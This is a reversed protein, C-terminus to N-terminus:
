PAQLLRDVLRAAGQHQEWRQAAANARLALEDFNALALRSGAVIGAVSWDLFEAAMGGLDRCMDAMITNTPVVCPIGNAVCEAVIGSYSSAYRAPDYPCIVLDARDLLKAWEAGLVPREDLNVRPNNRAIERLANQPEPMAEPTSNHVLFEVDPVDLLQQIVDPIFDFGKDIRQHGLMAARIPRNGSRRRIPHVASHPFPLTAFTWGTVARYIESVGRNPTFLCVNPFNDQSASSGAFRYMTARPEKRPDVLVVQLNTAGTRSVAVGPETAFEVFVRPQAGKPLNGIWQMSAMFQVPQVSSFYLIDDPSVPGIRQLDEYTVRWGVDFDRLWGALPDQNRYIESYTWWRFFPQVGLEQRLEAAVEQYGVITPDIGRSRLETRILRCHEGHHGNTTRLGPDLYFFRM